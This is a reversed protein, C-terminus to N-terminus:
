SHKPSLKHALPTAARKLLSMFASKTIPRMKKKTEPRIKIQKQRTM